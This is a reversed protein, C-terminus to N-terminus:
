SGLSRVWEGLRSSVQVAPSCKPNTIDAGAAGTPVPHYFLPGTGQAKVYDLFGQEIIHEHIPM